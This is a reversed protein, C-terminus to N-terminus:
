RGQGVPAAVIGAEFLADITAADEGLEELITRTHQGLEPAAAPPPALRDRVPPRLRRMGAEDVVFAERAQHLPHEMLEDPRLVPECCADVEAFIETWEDRTRTLFVEAIEARTQEILKPSGFQRRALDPREIAGCFRQWFKPELAAVTFFGGDKTEYIAYFGYGGTLTDGGRPPAAGGGAVHAALAGHLFAQAGDTMSIDVFRGEGSTQRSYLATLIGIIAWMSGGGIDAVQVPSLAPIAGAPGALGVVGALAAYNLDHGARERYPGDQGYGSIACYVLGPNAIRLQEWGLGLRAMVGPRFSELLVDAKACLKAVVDRGEPRKMDVALSRKGGNLSAFAYSQKGALPPLWRLYDGGQPTEVKIVEAGLDALV